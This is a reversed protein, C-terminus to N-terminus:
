PLFNGFRRQGIRFQDGEIIDIGLPDPKDLSHNRPHYVAKKLLKLDKFPRFLTISLGGAPQGPPGKVM